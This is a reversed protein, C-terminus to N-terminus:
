KGLLGVSAFHLAEVGTNTSVKHISGKRTPLELISKPGNEEIFVPINHDGHDRVILAAHDIKVMHQLASPINYGGAVRGNASARSHLGGLDIDQRIPGLCVEVSFWKKESTHQDIRCVVALTRLPDDTGRANDFVQMFERADGPLRPKNIAIDGLIWISDSVVLLGDGDVGSVAEAKQDTVLFPYITGIDRVIGSFGNERDFRQERADVDDGLKGTVVTMGLKKAMPTKIASSTVYKERGLIPTVGSPYPTKPLKSFFDAPLTRKDGYADRLIKFWGVVEDFRKFIEEDTGSEDQMYEAPYNPKNKHEVLGAITGGMEKQIGDDDWDQAVVGKELNTNKFDKYMELVFRTGGLVTRRQEESLDNWSTIAISMLFVISDGLEGTLEPKTGNGNVKDFDHEGLEQVAYDMMRQFDAKDAALVLPRERIFEAQAIFGSALGPFEVLYPHLDLLSFEDQGFHQNLSNSNEPEYKSLDEPNWM